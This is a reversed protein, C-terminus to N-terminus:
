IRLVSSESLRRVPLGPGLPSLRLSPGGRAHMAQHAGLHRAISAAWHYDHGYRRVAHRTAGILSLRLARRPPAGHPQTFSLRSAPVGIRSRLSEPGCYLRETVWHHRRLM